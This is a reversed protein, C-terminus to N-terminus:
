ERDSLPVFRDYKLLQHLDQATLRAVLLRGRM